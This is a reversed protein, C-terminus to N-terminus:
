DFLLLCDSEAALVYIYLISIMFKSGASQCALSLIVHSYLVFLFQSLKGKDNLHGPHAISQLKLEFHSFDPFFKVIVVHLVIIKKSLM